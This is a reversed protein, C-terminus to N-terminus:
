SFELLLNLKIRCLGSLQPYKVLNLGDSIAPKTFDSVKLTTLSGDTIQTSQAKEM